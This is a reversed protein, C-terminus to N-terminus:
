NWGRRAMPLPQAFCSQYLYSYNQHKDTNEVDAGASHNPLSYSIEFYTSAFFVDQGLYYYFGHWELFLFLHPTTVAVGM